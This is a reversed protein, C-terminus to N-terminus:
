YLYVLYVHKKKGNPKVIYQLIIYKNVHPEYPMIIDTAINSSYQNYPPQKDM